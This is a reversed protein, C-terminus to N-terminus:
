NDLSMAIALLIYTNFNPPDLTPVGELIMETM